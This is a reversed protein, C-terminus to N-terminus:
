VPPKTGPRHKPDGDGGRDGGSKISQPDIPSVTDIPPTGRGDEDRQQPQKGVGVGKKKLTKDV